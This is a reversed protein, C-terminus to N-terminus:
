LFWVSCHSPAGVAGSASFCRKLVLVDQAQKGVLSANEPANGPSTLMVPAVGHGQGSEFGSGKPELASVRVVSGRWGPSTKHIKSLSSALSFCHNAAKQM